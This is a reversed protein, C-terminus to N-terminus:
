LDRTHIFTKAVYKRLISIKIKVYIEHSLHHLSTNPIWIAILLVALILGTHHFM